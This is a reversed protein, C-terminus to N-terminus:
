AQRRRPTVSDLLEAFQRAMEVHSYRNVFDERGPYPVFGQQVYSAYWDRIARKATPVDRVYVGARTEELLGSVVGPPGGVALIPRRAALYEFVKGTYTGVDRPDDWGLLLLVHSERQRDLAEARPVFGCQQVVEALREEEIMRQVFAEQQGLFRVQVTSSNMTGEDILERIATFLIRPDRRGDYLHGAYTITFKPTLPAVACDDPDFGNPIALIRKAPHMKQQDEAWPKSTTVLADATALTRYELSREVRTRLWGHEVYPNMTWLDRFDAVWPMDLTKKLDSAIIHATAPGSSSIMADFSCRRLLLRGEKVAYPRWGRHTDPYRLWELGFRRIWPKGAAGDSSGTPPAAGASATSDQSIGLARKVRATVSGPYFTEVVPVDLPSPGPLAATLVTPDWGFHPLYKALGKLRQSAMGPRPPFYFTVLLVRRAAAGLSSTTQAM